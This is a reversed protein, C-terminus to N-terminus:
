GSCLGRGGVQRDTHDPPQEPEGQPRHLKPVESCALAPSPKARPRTSHASCPDPGTSMRTSLWSRPIDGRVTVPRTSASSASPETAWLGCGASRRAVMMESVGAASPEIGVMRPLRVFPVNLSTLLMTAQPFQTAGNGSILSQEGLRAPLWTGACSRRRLAPATPWMIAAIAAAAAGRSVRSRRTARAGRSRLTMSSAKPGSPDQADATPGVHDPPCLGPMRRRGRGRERQRGPLGTM